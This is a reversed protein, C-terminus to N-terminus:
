HGRAIRDVLHWIAPTTVWASSGNNAMRCGSTPIIVDTRRADGYGFRLLSAAGTDNPCSFIRRPTVRKLGNLGAVLKDIEDRESFGSARTLRQSRVPHRRLGGYSCLEFTIPTGPVPHLRAAAITSAAPKEGTLKAPCLLGTGASQPHMSRAVHTTQGLSLGMTQVTIVQGTGPAQITWCSARGLVANACAGQGKAAGETSWVLPVPSERYASAEISRCDKTVWIAGGGPIHSGFDYPGFAEVLGFGSPVWTPVHGKMLDSLRSPTVKSARIIGLPCNIRPAPSRLGAPLAVRPPLSNPPSPASTCAGAVVFTIVLAVFWKATAM